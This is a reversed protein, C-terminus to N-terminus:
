IAWILLMEAMKESSYGNMYIQDIRAGENVYYGGKKECYSDLYYKGLIADWTPFLFMGIALIVSLLNRM